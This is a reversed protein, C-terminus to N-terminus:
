QESPTPYEERLFAILDRVEEETLNQQPMAGMGNNVINQINEDTLDPIVEPFNGITSHCVWCIQDHITEGNTVSGEPHEEEVDEDCAAGNTIWEEIIAIDEEPLVGSIPMISDVGDVTGATGKMKHLLYSNEPEYPTVLNM